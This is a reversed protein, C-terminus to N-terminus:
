LIAEIGKRRIVDKTLWSTTAKARRAKKAM